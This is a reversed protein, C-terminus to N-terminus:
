EGKVEVQKEKIIKYYKTPSVATDKIDWKPAFAPSFYIDEETVCSGFWSSQTFGIKVMKMDEKKGYMKSHECQVLGLDELTVTKNELEEIKIESQVIWYCTFCFAM